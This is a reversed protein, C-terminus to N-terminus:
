THFLPKAAQTTAKAIIKLVRQYLAFTDETDDEDLLVKCSELVDLMEPATAILRANAMQEETPSGFVKQEFIFRYDAINSPVTIILWTTDSGDRKQNLNGETRFTWPGPTHNTM